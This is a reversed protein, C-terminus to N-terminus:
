AIRQRPEAVKPHLFCKAAPTVGEWRKGWAARAQGAALVGKSRLDLGDGNSREHIYEGLWTPIVSTVQLLVLGIGAACRCARGTM